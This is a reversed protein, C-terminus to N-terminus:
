GAAQRKRYKHAWKSIARIDAPTTRCCGGIVRAGMNYWIETLEGFDYHHPLKHWEKTKEDFVDGANPYAVVPKSTNSGADQILSSVHQPYTCNIGVAAVQEYADLVQACRAITTGESITHDTEGHFSIWAYIDPYNKLIELIAEAEELSPLTEAAIVDIGAKVLIDIRPLHYNIFDQQTIGARYPKSESGDAFYAAYPGVSGAILPYARFRREESSLGEWFRNRAKKAVDVSLRIFNEAEEPSYGRKKFGAVSAQYSATIAVDAGALFYEYHVQEIIDPNEILIKASWLEDNLDYGRDQIETALGGDLICVKWTDLIEKIKNNVTDGAGM